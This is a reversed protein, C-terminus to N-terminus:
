SKRPRGYRRGLFETEIKILLADADLASKAQAAEQFMAQPMDLRHLAGNLIKAQLGTLPKGKSHLLARDFAEAREVALEWLSPPPPQPIPPDDTRPNPLTLAASVDPAKEQRMGLRGSPLDFRNVLTSLVSTHDFADNLITGASTFPSVVIAPVRVGLRDFRFGSGGPQGPPIVKDDPSIAFPCETSTPPRVHDYCGGHEDFLVILLTKDWDPSERLARYVKYLLREGEAVNSPGYLEIANAEPHMDNEPGWWLSDIYNPELFSYHPLKGKSADAVFDDLHSFRGGEIAPLWLNEQTLLALSTFIWGGCYIKWTKGAGALLDFVTTTDNVFIIGNDGENNVYGSSTGAHVFSRNCLTQTPISSFWHDCLGYYHALSALVPVSAPTFCNMIISPDTVHPQKAYNYLFGQMTAPESPDPPVQDFPPADLPGFLQAYVDQYPEGPDPNPATLDSGKAVPLRKTSNPAEPNSLNKGSVGEFNPPVKDFPPPNTPDYLWGLLNDFSRNELMLVVVHEIQNLQDIPM